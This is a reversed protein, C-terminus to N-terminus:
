NNISSRRRVANFRGDDGHMVTLDIDQAATWYGRFLQTADAQLRHGIPLIGIGRNYACRSL